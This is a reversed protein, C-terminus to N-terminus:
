LVTTSTPMSPDFVLVNSGFNPSNEATVPITIALAVLFLAICSPLKLM